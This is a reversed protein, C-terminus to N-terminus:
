QNVYAEKSLQIVKSVKFDIGRGFKATMYKLKRNVCYIFNDYLESEFITDQGLYEKLALYLNVMEKFDIQGLMELVVQWRHEDVDNVITRLIQNAERRISHHIKKNKTIYYLNTKDPDPYISLLTDM